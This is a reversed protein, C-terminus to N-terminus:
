FDLQGYDKIYDDIIPGQGDSTNAHSIVFSEQDKALDTFNDNIFKQYELALFQDKIIKLNDEHQDDLTFIVNFM